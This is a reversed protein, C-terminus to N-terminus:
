LVEGSNISSNVESSPRRVAECLSRFGSLLVSCDIGVAVLNFGSRAYERSKVASAAFIGCPKSYRECVKQVVAIGDVVQQADIRGPIGFSASLDYPGIIVGDVVPHPIISDANEV